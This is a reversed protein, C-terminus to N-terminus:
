RHGEKGLHGNGTGQLGTGVGVPVQFRGGGGQTGRGSSGLECLVQLAAPRSSRTGQADQVHCSYAGAHARMAVRFSLSAAPGEQLWHGNHYWSYLTPPIAAPDECTVTISTGEPVTASPALTVQM